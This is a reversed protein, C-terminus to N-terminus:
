PTEGQIDTILGHQLLMALIPTPDTQGAAEGLPAGTQLAVLVAHQAGTLPIVPVDFAPTRAILAFEPGKPIPAPQAGPQNNAWITVAPYRSKFAIVSPALILRLTSPDGAMLASPDATPVDAAHYSRGRALELRAVDSLYPLKAVPPFADLFAPFEAGWYILVPNQPPHKAAFVRAMATFFDTGILREIAPFRQSLASILGHQVNNRYVSFRRPNDDADGLGDPTEPSWLSAHFRAEMTAHPDLPASM